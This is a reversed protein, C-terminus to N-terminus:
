VSHFFLEISEFFQLSTHALIHRDAIPAQHRLRLDLLKGIGGMVVLPNVKVFFFGCAPRKSGGDGM